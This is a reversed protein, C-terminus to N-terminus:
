LWWMESSEQSWRANQGHGVFGLSRLALASDERCQVHCDIGEIERLLDRADGWRLGGKTGDGDKEGHDPHTREKGTIPDM